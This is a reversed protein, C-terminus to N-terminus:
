RRHMAELLRRLVANRQPSIGAPAANHVVIDILSGISPRQDVGARLASDGFLGQFDGTHTLKGCSAGFDVGVTFRMNSPLAMTGTADFFNSFDPGPSVSNITAATPNTRVGVVAISGTDDSLVAIVNTGDTTWGSISPLLDGCSRSTTPGFYGCFRDPSVANNFKCPCSGAPATTPTRTPTVRRTPTPNSGGCGGLAENVAQILENIEVAGSGDFDARCEAGLAPRSAVLLAVAFLAVCRM